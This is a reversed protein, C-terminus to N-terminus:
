RGISRSINSLITARLTASSNSRSCRGLELFGIAGTGPLGDRGASTGGLGGSADYAGEVRDVRPPLRWLGFTFGGPFNCGTRGFRSGCKCPSEYPRAEIADEYPPLWFLAM